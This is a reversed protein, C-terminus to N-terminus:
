YYDNKLHRPNPLPTSLAILLVIPSILEKVIKMIAEFSPTPKLAAKMKEM